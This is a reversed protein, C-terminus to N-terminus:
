RKRFKRRFGALGILGSGLLLMTAPEPIPNYNGESLTISPCNPPGSYNDNIGLWISADSIMEWKSNDLDGHALYGTHGYGSPSTWIDYKRDATIQITTYYWTDEYIRSSGSWEHDTSFWDAAAVVHVKAEADWEGIGVYFASWEDGAQDGDSDVKWKLNITANQFNATESFASINGRHTSATVKLGEPTDTLEPDLDIGANWSTDYAYGQWGAVSTSITIAGVTNCTVVMLTLATITALFNKM